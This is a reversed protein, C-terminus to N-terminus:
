KEEEKIKVLVSKRKSEKDFRSVRNNYWAYGNPQTTTGKTEVWGEPVEDVVHDKFSELISISKKNLM